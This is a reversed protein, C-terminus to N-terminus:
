LLVPSSLVPTSLVVPRHIPRQCVPHDRCWLAQPCIILAAVTARPHHDRLTLNAMFRPKAQLDAEAWFVATIAFHDGNQGSKKPLKPRAAGNATAEPGTSDLLPATAQAKHADGRKREESMSGSTRIERM